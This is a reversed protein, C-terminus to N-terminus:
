DEGNAPLSNSVAGRPCDRAFHGEEGCVYCRYPLCIRWMLHCQMSSRDRERDRERGRFICNVSLTQPALPEPTTVSKGRSHKSKFIQRARSGSLLNASRCSM